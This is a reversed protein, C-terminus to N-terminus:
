QHMSFLFAPLICLIYAGSFIYLFMPAYLFRPPYFFMPADLFSQRISFGKSCPYINASVSVNTCLFFEAGALTTAALFVLRRGINACCSFYAAGSFCQRVTLSPLIRLLQSREPGASPRTRRRAPTNFQTCTSELYPITRKHGAKHTSERGYWVLKNYRGAVSLITTL